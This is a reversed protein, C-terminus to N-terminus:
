NGNWWGGNTVIKLVMMSDIKVLNLGLVEERV